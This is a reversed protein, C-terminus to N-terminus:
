RSRSAQDPEVGYFLHEVVSSRRQGLRRLGVGRGRIPRLAGAVARIGMM